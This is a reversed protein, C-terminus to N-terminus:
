TRMGSIVGRIRDGYFHCPKPAEGFAISSAVGKLMLLQKNNFCAKAHVSSMEVNAGTDLAETTAIMGESLFIKGLDDVFPNLSEVAQWLAEEIQVPTDASNNLIRSVDPWLIDCVSTRLWRGGPYLFSCSDSDMMIAEPEINIRLLEAVAMRPINLEVPFTFGLWYEILNINNTALASQGRFLIGRAWPRSADEAIFPFLVKLPKLIGKELQILHGSPPIDPFEEVLCDIFAKFKGSRIALKGSNTLHLQITDQCAQIAKVFPIARPSAELDLAIPSHLGLCGNFGRITGDKIRFHTLEPLYDKKAVAGQVFRIADLM